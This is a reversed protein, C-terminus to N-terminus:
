GQDKIPIYQQHLDVKEVSGDLQNVQDRQVLDSTPHGSLARSVGRNRRASEGIESPKTSYLVSADRGYVKVKVVPVWRLEGKLTQDFSSREADTMLPQDGELVDGFCVALLSNRLVISLNKSHTVLHEQLYDRNLDIHFYLLSALLLTMGVISVSMFHRLSPSMTM